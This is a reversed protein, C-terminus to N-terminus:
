DKRARLTYLEADLIVENTDIDELVIDAPDNWDGYIAIEVKHGAHSKLLNWLFNEENEDYEGDDEEDEHPWGQNPDGESFQCMEYIANQHYTIKIPYPLSSNDEDYCAMVIGLWRFDKGLAEEESLGEMLPKDNYFNELMKKTADGSQCKWDGADMLDLMDPIFGKNWAAVLEFVDQGGFHGYGDYCSEEIHGGGFEKPKLLYVEMPVDDLIQRDRDVCDMWSFQGM